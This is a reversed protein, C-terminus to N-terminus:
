PPCLLKSGYVFGRFSSIAMLHRWVCGRRFAMVSHRPEGGAISGAAEVRRNRSQWQLPWELIVMQSGM